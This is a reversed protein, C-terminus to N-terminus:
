FSVLLADVIERERGVSLREVGAAHIQGHAFPIEGRLLLGPAEALFGFFLRDTGGERLMEPERRCAGPQGQRKVSTKLEVRLQDLRAAAVAAGVKSRV